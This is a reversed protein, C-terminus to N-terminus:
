EGDEGNYNRQKRESYDQTVAVPSVSRRVNNDVDYLPTPPAYQVSPPVYQVSPPAYMQQQPPPPSPPPPPPQHELQPPPLQAPQHYAPAAQYMPHHQIQNHQQAPPPPPGYGGHGLHTAHSYHPHHPHPLQPLLQPPPPLPPGPPQLNMSNTPHGNYLMCCTVTIDGGCGEIPIGGALYCLLSFTCAPQSRQFTCTGPHRVIPPVAPPGYDPPSSCLCSLNAEHQLYDMLTTVPTVNQGAMARENQEFCRM